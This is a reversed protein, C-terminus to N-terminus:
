YPKMAAYGAGSTNSFDVVTSGMPIASYQQPAYGTAGPQQQSAYPNTAPQGYQPYGMTYQPPMAADALEIEVWFNNLSRRGLMLHEARYRWNVGRSPFRANIHTMAQSMASQIELMNQRGRYVMCCGLVGFMVFFVMASGVAYAPGLDTSTTIYMPAGIFLIMIVIMIGFYGMRSGATIKYQQMVANLQNVAETYEQRSIKGELFLSYQQDFSGTFADYPVVVLRSSSPPALM